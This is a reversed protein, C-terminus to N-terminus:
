LVMLVALILFFLFAAYLATLLAKIWSVDGLWVAGMFGVGVSLAALVLLPLPLALLFFLPLRIRWWPKRIDNALRIDRPGLVGLVVMQAFGSVITLMGAGFGFLMCFYPFVSDWRSTPTPFPASLFVSATAVVLAAVVNINNTRDILDKKIDSWKPQDENDEEVIEKLEEFSPVGLFILFVTRLFRTVFEDQTELRRDLNIPAKPEPSKITATPEASKGDVAM